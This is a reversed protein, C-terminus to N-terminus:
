GSRRTTSSEFSLEKLNQMYKINMQHLNVIFQVMIEKMQVHHTTYKWKKRWHGIAMEQLLLSMECQQEHTENITSLATNLISYYPSDPDEYIPATNYFMM